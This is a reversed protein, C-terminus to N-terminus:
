VKLEMENNSQLNLNLPFPVCQNSHFKINCFHVLNLPVRAMLLVVLHMVYGTDISVTKGDLQFM